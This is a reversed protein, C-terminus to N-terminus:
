KKLSFDLDERRCFGVLLVVDHIGADNKEERPNLSIGKNFAM